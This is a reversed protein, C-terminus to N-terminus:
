RQRVARYDRRSDLWTQCADNHRRSPPLTRSPCHRDGGRLFMGRPVNSRFFYMVNLSNAQSCSPLDEIDIAINTEKAESQGNRQHWAKSGSREACLGHFIASIAVAFFVSSARFFACLDPSAVFVADKSPVRFTRVRSRSPRTAKAKRTGLDPQNKSRHHRSQM